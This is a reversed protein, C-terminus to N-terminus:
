LRVRELGVATALPRLTRAAAVALILMPAITVAAGYGLEGWGSGGTVMMAAGLMAISGSAGASALAAARMRRPTIRGLRLGIGLTLATLVAVAMTATGVYEVVQQLVVLGHPGADDDQKLNWAVPQAITTLFLALSTRRLHTASLIAQFGPAVTDLTGFQTVAAREAADRDLHHGLQEAADLLHDHAERVLDRRARRPGSLVVDLERVYADIASM